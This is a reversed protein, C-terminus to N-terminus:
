PGPQGESSAHGAKEGASSLKRAALLHSYRFPVLDSFQFSALRKTIDEATWFRVYFLSKKAKRALPAVLFIGGGAMADQVAKMAHDLAADGVIHEIVDIMLIVDFEGKIADVTVDCHNFTYGPFRKVMRPFLSDAIDIGVYHKVGQDCLIQTYFGNGCGIELVRSQKFDIGEKRCVELFKLAAQEYMVKNDVESLGEDGVGKLSTGYKDLRDQWYRRADYGGKRRYRLPAVLTKDFARRLFGMPDRRFKLLIENM